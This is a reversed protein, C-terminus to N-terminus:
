KKQLKDIMKQVEEVSVEAATAMEEATMPPALALGQTVLSELNMDGIGFYSRLMTATPDTFAWDGTDVETWKKGAKTIVNGEADKIPDGFSDYQVESKGELEKWEKKKGFAMKFGDTPTMGISEFISVPKPPAARGGSVGSPFRRGHEVEWKLKENEKQKIKLSVASEELGYQQILTNIENQERIYPAYEELGPPVVGTEAALTVANMKDTITMPAPVIGTLARPDVGEAVEGSLWEAGTMGPVEQPGRGAVDAAKIGGRLLGAVNSVLGVRDTTEGKYAEGIRKGWEDPMEPHPQSVINWKIEQTARIKKLKVDQESQKIGLDIEKVLATTYENTLERDATELAMQERKLAMEQEYRRQEDKRRRKEMMMSAINAGIAGWDLHTGGLPM